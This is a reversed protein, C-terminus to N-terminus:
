NRLETLWAFSAMTASTPLYECGIWGQYGLEDIQRLLFPFNIEGTGPQHRGPNDALQVHEIIPLLERFREALNGEMKQMHYIDYQLRVNATTGLAEILAKGQQSTAVLFGPVDYTNIPELLLRIGERALKTAAYDLNGLLVDKAAEPTVGRPLVGALCNIRRCDLTEAYSLAIDIGQRFETVREPHCAIGREGKEWNGAPLNFLVLQLDTAKLRGAIERKDAAYPFQVEVAKFGAASAAHFREPFPLETFLTSLNASFRPM